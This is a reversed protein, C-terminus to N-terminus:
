ASRLAERIINRLNKRNEAMKKKPMTRKAVPSNQSNVRVQQLKSPDGANAVLRQGPQSQDFQPVDVSLESSQQQEETKSQQSELKKIRKDLSAKAKSLDRMFKKPRKSRDAVAEGGSHFAVHMNGVDKFNSFNDLDVKIAAALNNVTDSADGVGVREVDEQRIGTIGFRDKTAFSNTLGTIVQSRAILGLPDPHGQEKATQFVGLLDQDSLDV